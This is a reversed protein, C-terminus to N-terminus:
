YQAAQELQAPDLDLAPWARAADVKELFPLRQAIRPARAHDGVAAREVVALHLRWRARHDVAVEVELENGEVASEGLIEAIQGDAFHDAARLVNLMPRESVDGRYLPDARIQAESEIAGTVAVDERQRLFHTMVEARQELEEVRGIDLFGEIGVGLPVHD